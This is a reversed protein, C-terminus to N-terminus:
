NEGSSVPISLRERVGLSLFDLEGGKLVIMEYGVFEMTENNTSTSFPPTRNLGTFFFNIPLGNM